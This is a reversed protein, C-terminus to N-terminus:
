NAAWIHVTNASSVVTLAKGGASFQLFRVSENEPVKFRAVSEGNALNLLDVVKPENM